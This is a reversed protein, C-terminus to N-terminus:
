RAKRRVGVGADITDTQNADCIADASQINQIGNRACVCLLRRNHNHTSSGSSFISFFIREKMVLNLSELSLAADVIFDRHGTSHQELLLAGGRFNHAANLSRKSMVAGATH